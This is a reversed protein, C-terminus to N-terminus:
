HDVLPHATRPQVFIVKFRARTIAVRLLRRRESLRKADWTPDLLKGQYMGEGIIVGDFEKGKSKHMNMLSVRPVPEDRSELMDAALVGRVTSAADGYAYGDWGSSLGWALSDTARFLRLMRAHQVIEAMDKAGAGFTARVRRWDMVPNGSLELDATAWLVLKKGAATRPNKGTRIDEIAKELSAYKKKAAQSRPNSAAYKVRYFDAMKQLTFSAREDAPLAPWELLSALVEGSMAALGADWHLYHEVAEYTQGEIIGPESLAQSLSSVAFRDTGLVAINAPRQLQRDLANLLDAVAKHVVGPYENAYRYRRRYIGSAIPLSGSNRLVANAFDLIGGAHSRHNDASLDYETPSLAVRAEPLRQETVGEIFDYIRQDPDALLVVQSAAALAQIVRWQDENTDQFEDIIVLPYTSSYLARVSGDKTLLEAAAAALRDFVYVGDEVALRLSETKWDGDFDSRARDEESPALFRPQKGHLLRGHAAVLEIFFSHFTRIELRRRHVWTVLDGARDGIQRVAARSFSIFLIRQEPELSEMDAVAKILAVTTKGCGPGGTVLAHGRDALFDKRKEDLEMRLQCGKARLQREPAM